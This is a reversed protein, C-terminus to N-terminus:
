KEKKAAAAAPDLEEPKGKRGRGKNLARKLAALHPIPGIQKELRKAILYGNLVRRGMEGRLEAATDDLGKAQTVMDKAVAKYSRAATIVSRIEAGTLQGAAAVEPYTDCAVAMLEFFDESLNAYNAIKVRRGKGAFNFGDITRAIERVKVMMEFARAEHESSTVPTTTEAM